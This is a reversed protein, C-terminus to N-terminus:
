QRGGATDRRHRVRSSQAQSFVPRLAELLVDIQQEQKGDREKGPERLEALRLFAARQFRLYEDALRFQVTTEDQAPLVDQTAEVWALEDAYREEVRELRQLLMNLQAAEPEDAGATRHEIERLRANIVGRMRACAAAFRTRREAESPLRLPRTEEQQRRAWAVPSYLKTGLVVGGIGPLIVPETATRVAQRSYYIDRPLDAQALCNQLDAFQEPRLCLVTEDHSGLAHHLLLQSGAYLQLAGLRLHGAPIPADELWAYLEDLLAQAAGTSPVEGERVPDPLGYVPWARYNTVWRILCRATARTVELMPILGHLQPFGLQELKSQEQLTVAESPALYEQELKYRLAGEACPAEASKGYMDAGGTVRKEAM